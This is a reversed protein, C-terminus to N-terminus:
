HKTLIKELELAARAVLGASLNYSMGKLSHAGFGVIKGDGVAIGEEIQSMLKPLNSLHHASITLTFNACIKRSYEWLWRFKVSIFFSNLEKVM